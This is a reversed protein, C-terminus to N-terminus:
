IQGYFRVRERAARVHGAHPHFLQLQSLEGFRYHFDYVIAARGRQAFWAPAINRQFAVAEGPRFRLKQLYRLVPQRVRQGSHERLEARHEDDPQSVPADRGIREARARDVAHENRAMHTFVRGDRELSPQPAYAGDRRAHQANRPQFRRFHHLAYDFVRLGVRDDGDVRKGRPFCAADAGRQLDGIRANLRAAAYAIM